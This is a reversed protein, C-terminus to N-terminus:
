GAKRAACFIIDHFIALRFEEWRSPQLQPPLALKMEAATRPFSGRDLRWLLRPVWRHSRVADALILKGGPRLLRVTEALMAELETDDLHHFVKACLVADFTADRFPCATANALVAFGGRRRARFRRLKELDLDLCVYPRRASLADSLGTGGGIDILRSRVPVTHLYPELRERFHKEGALRQVLDYFAGSHLLRNIVAPLAM